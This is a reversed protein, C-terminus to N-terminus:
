EKDEEPEEPKEKSLIEVAEQGEQIRRDVESTLLDISKIEAQAKFMAPLDKANLLDKVFGERLNAFAPLLIKQWGATKVTEDLMRMEAAADELDARREDDLAM